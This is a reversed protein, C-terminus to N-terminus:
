PQHVPIMKFRHAKGMMLMYHGKWPQIKMKIKEFDKYSRALGNM